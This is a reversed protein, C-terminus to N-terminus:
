LGAAVQKVAEWKPGTRDTIDNSLGWFGTDGWNGGLTYFTFLDLGAAQWAHMLEVLLEKMRPDHQLAEKASAAGTVPLLHQGGEYAMFKIGLGDARAKAWAFAPMLESALYARMQTVLEAATPGAQDDIYANGALGYLYWSVPHGPNGFANGPGYVGQIYNLPQDYTDFWTLQRALVPRFRTMMDADGVVARFLDSVRVIQRGVRRWSYEYINDAPVYRLHNPDGGDLEAQTADENAHTSEYAGNWVENVWEFYVHRGAALPPYVPNAQVSTYPEVGDSGYKFLRAVKTIYDDSAHYPIAVWVDKGTANALLTVTEWAGGEAAGYGSQVSWGPLTRDRWEVATNLNIQGNDPGQWPMLRLTSFISIAALFDQAFLEGRAHGPRMLRVDKVGGAADRRAGFTLQVSDSMHASSGGALPGILLDATTEGGAYARNSLTGGVARVDADGTFSLKYPQPRAVLGKDSAIILSAEGTPWGDPGLTGSDWRGQKVADAYFPPTWDTAGEVNVGLAMASTSTSSSVIVFAVSSKTPDAKSTAVVHCTAAASPARYLGGTSVSGCSSGEQISWTVETESSGTVAAAFVASGSPQLSAGSPAVEVAVTSGAAPSASSSRSPADVSGTGCAALLSLVAAAGLLGRLPRPSSPM